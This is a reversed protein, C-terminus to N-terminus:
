LVAPESAWQSAWQSVSQSVPKCPWQSVPESAPKWPTPLQSEEPLWSMLGRAVRQNSRGKYFLVSGLTERSTLQLVSTKGVRECERPFHRDEPTLTAKVKRGGKWTSLQLSTLPQQRSRQPWSLREARSQGLGLGKDPSGWARLAVKFFQWMGKM